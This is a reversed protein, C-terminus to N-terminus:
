EEWEKGCSCKFHKTGSKPEIYYPKAMKECWPCSITVLTSKRTDEEESQRLVYIVKALEQREAEIEKLRKKASELTHM